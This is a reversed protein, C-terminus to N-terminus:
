HLSNKSDIVSYCLLRHPSQQFVKNETERSIHSYLRLPRFVKPAIIVYVQQLWFQASLWCTSADIQIIKGEFKTKTGLENIELDSNQPFRNALDLNTMRNGKFEMYSRPPLHIFESAFSLKRHNIKYSNEYLGKELFNLNIKLVM